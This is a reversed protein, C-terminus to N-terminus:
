AEDEQTKKQEGSGKKNYLYSLIEAVATYAEFPIFEDVELVSLIEALSADEHIPIDHEQAIKLIQEAMHGDGSAVIKPAPGKSKDYKLAVAKKEKEKDTM